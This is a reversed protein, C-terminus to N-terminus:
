ELTTVHNMANSSLAKTAPHPPPPPPRSGIKPEPKGSRTERATVGAVAEIGIVPVWCNVAVATNLSPDDRLTVAVELQTDPVGALAVTAGAVPRAVPTRPPVDTMVALKPVKDPEAVKVTVLAVDANNM